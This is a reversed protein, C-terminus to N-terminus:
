ARGDDTRNHGHCRDDHEQRPAELKETRTRRDAGTRAGEACPERIEYSEDGGPREGDRGRHRPSEGDGRRGPDDKGDRVAAADCPHQGDHAGERQQHRPRHGAPHRPDSRPRAKREHQRGSTGRQERPHSRFAETRREPRSRESHRVDNEASGAGEPPCRHEDTDREEGAPAEIAKVAGAVELGREEGGLRRREAVEADEPEVSLQARQSRVEGRGLALRHQREACASVGGALVVEFPDERGDERAPGLLASPQQSRGGDAVDHEAGADVTLDNAREGPLRIQAEGLAELSALNQRVLRPERHGAPHLRRIPDCGADCLGLTRQERGCGLIGTAGTREM